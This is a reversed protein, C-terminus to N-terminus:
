KNAWAPPKQEWAKLLERATLAPWEVKASDLTHELCARLEAKAATLDKAGFSFLAFVYLYDNRQAPAISDPIPLVGRKDDIARLITKVTEAAEHFREPIRALAAALEAANVNHELSKLAAKEFVAKLCAAKQEPFKEAVEGFALDADSFNVARRLMVGKLVLANAVISRMDPYAFVIRDCIGITEGYRGQAGIIEGKLLLAEATKNQAEFTTPQSAKLLEDCLAQAEEARGQAMRLRANFLLADADAGANIRSAERALAEAEDPQGAALRLEARRLITRLAPTTKGPAQTAAKAYAADADADRGMDRFVDGRILLANAAHELYNLSSENLGDLATLAESYRGQRLLLKSKELLARSVYQSATKYEECVRNFYNMAAVDRGFLAENMGIFLVAAAGFNRLEPHDRLAREFETRAEEHRRLVTLALGKEVIAEQTRQDNEPDAEIALEYLPLAEEARGLNTLLMAKRLYALSKWGRGGVYQNHLAKDYFQFADEHQGRRNRSIGMTVLTQAVIEPFDDYDRLVADFIKVAEDSRDLDDLLVGKKLLTQVVIFRPIDPNKLLEDLIALAENARDLRALADSKAAMALFVQEKFDSFNVAIQDFVALGEEYKRLATLTGGKLLLAEILEKKQDAYETEIRACLDLVDQHREKKRLAQAYQLYARACHTRQNGFRQLIRALIIQAQVYKGGRILASAYNSLATAGVTPDDPYFTELAKVCMEAAQYRGFSLLQNYRSLLPRIANRLIEDNEMGVLASAIAQEYNCHTWLIEANLAQGYQRWPPGGQNQVREALVAAEALLRKEQPNPNDPKGARERILERAQELLSLAQRYTAEWALYSQPKLGAVEGYVEAAERYHGREFLVHGKELVSVVVSSGRRLLRVNDFVTHANWAYFGVYERGLGGTIPLPDTFSVAEKGDVYFRATGGIREFLVRSTRGVPPKVNRNFAVNFDGRQLKVGEDPGLSVFYGDKTLRKKSANCFLAAEANKRPDVRLCQVDAEWRVDGIVPVDLLLFANSTSEVLLQGGVIRWKGGNPIWKESLAEAEFDDEFAVEWEATPEFLDRGHWGIAGAAVLLATAVFLRAFFRRTAFATRDFSVM